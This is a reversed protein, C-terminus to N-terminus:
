RKEMLFWTMDDQPFVDRHYVFGYDVLNLPYTDMMEGAFDRKFLKGSHERYRVEIPSPSYYEAVLIYRGSAQFAKAYIAKLEDPNIHILVGKLLVLDFSSKPEYELISANVASIASISSLEVFASQNIEVAELRIKPFLTRLAILNNGRNAGFELASTIPRCQGLIRSFFAINSELFATANRKTYEDGFEGAWFLEQETKYNM